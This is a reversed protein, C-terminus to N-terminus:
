LKKARATTYGLLSIPAVGIKEPMLTSSQALGSKCFRYQGTTTIVTLAYLTAAEFTWRSGNIENPRWLQKEETFREDYEHVKSLNELLPTLEAM